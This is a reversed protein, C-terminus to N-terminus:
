CGILMGQLERRWWDIMCVGSNALTEAYLSRKCAALRTAAQAATDHSACKHLLSPVKLNDLLLNSGSAATQLSALGRQRGVVGVQHSGNHLVAVRGVVQLELLGAISLRTHLAM